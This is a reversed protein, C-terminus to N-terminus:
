PETLCAPELDADNELPAIRLNIAGSVPLPTPHALWFAEASFALRSRQSSRMGSMALHATAASSSESRTAGVARAWSACQPYPLSCPGDCHDSSFGSNSLQRAPLRCDGMSMAAVSFASRGAM